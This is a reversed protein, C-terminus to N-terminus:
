LMIVYRNKFTLCRKRSKKYMEERIIKEVTASHRRIMGHKGAPIRHGVLKEFGAADAVAEPGSGRDLKERVLARVRALYDALWCLWGRVASKGVLIPGHGPVLTGIPMEALARLTSELVASDGESVVLIISSFVADGGFLVQDEKVYPSICDVSHGPTPFLRVHKSGLDVRLEDTFCLTPWSIQSTLQEPVVGARKALQPVTRQIVEPTLAHSIVDARAFASSGLIHYGHGHTLVLLRPALGHTQIFDVMAQGEDPYNGTDIALTARQGIVIGNKGEVVRHDVSFVGSAVEM